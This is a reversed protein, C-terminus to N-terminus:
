LELATWLWQMRARAEERSAERDFDEGRSKLIRGGASNEKDAFRGISRRIRKLYSVDSDLVDAWFEDFDSREDPGVRQDYMQIAVAWFLAEKARLSAGQTFDIVGEAAVLTGLWFRQGEAEEEYVFFCDPELFGPVRDVVAYTTRM